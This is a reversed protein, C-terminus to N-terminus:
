VTRQQRNRIHAFAKPADGEKSEFFMYALVIENYDDLNPDEDFEPDIYFFLPMDVEEHPNLQQEEFCFCQIKNFYKGSSFPKMNYTSIGIIPKDTLNEATFFALATDGPAVDVYPQQAKFTWRKELGRNVSTDFRVRVLRDEVKKMTRLQEGIDEDKWKTVPSGDFGTAQCFKRYLPAAAAAVGGMIVGASLAYNLATKAGFKMRERRESMSEFSRKVYKNGLNNECRRMCHKGMITSCTSSHVSKNWFMNGRCSSFNRQLLHISIPNASVQNMTM